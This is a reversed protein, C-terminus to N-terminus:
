EKIFRTREIAGDEIIELLYVGSALTSVDIHNTMDNTHDSVQVILQGDSSVVRVMANKECSFNLMDSVPNPYFTIPKRAQNQAQVGLNGDMNYKQIFNDVNGTASYIEGVEGAFYLADSTVILREFRAGDIDGEPTYFLFGEDGFSTDLTGDANYRACLAPYPNSLASGVGYFYFRNQDDMVFDTLGTLGTFTQVPVWNEDCQYIVQWSGIYRHGNKYYLAPGIYTTYAWSIDTTNVANGMEDFEIIALLGSDGVYAKFEIFIHGDILVSSQPYYDAGPLLDNMDYSRTGNEGFATNLVGDTSICTINLTDQYKRSIQYIYSDGIHTWLSYCSWGVIDLPSAVVATTLGGAGFSDDLSGNADFAAFGAKSLQSIESSESTLEIASFYTREPTFSIVSPASSYNEPLFGLYPAAYIPAYQLDLEGDLTIGMVHPSGFNNDDKYALLLRGNQLYFDIVEDRSYYNITAVGNTGFNTDLTQAHSTASFYFFASAVVLRLGCRVRCFINTKKFM